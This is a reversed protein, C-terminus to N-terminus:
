EVQGEEFVITGSCSQYDKDTSATGDETRYSIEVRGRTGGCRIIQMVCSVLSDELEIESKSLTFIGHHDDDMILVTALSPCALRISPDEEEEEVEEQLEEATITPVLQNPSLPLPSQIEPTLFAQSRKPGQQANNNLEIRKLDPSNTIKVSYSSQCDDTPENVIISPPTVHSSRRIEKQNGDLITVSPVGDKNMEYSVLSPSQSSSDNTQSIQHSLIQYADPNVLGRYVSIKRQQQKKGLVRRPNFLRIYFHQDGEYVLDEIIAIEIIKKTQGPQFCITGRVPNYDRGSLADGDETAYDVLVQRSLDGNQRVVTATFVGVDEEVTYHGPSFFIETYDDNKSPERFTSQFDVLLKSERRMRWSSLGTLKKCAKMRLLVDSKTGRDLLEITALLELQKSDQVLPHKRRMQRLTVLFDRRQEEFMRFDQNQAEQDDPFLKLGSITCDDMRALDTTSTEVLVKNNFGLQYTVIKEEKTKKKQNEIYRDALYASFLSCPFLSFTLLGEWVEVVGPSIVAAVLILWIYGMTSWAAVVLFIPLHNIRRTEGKPIVFVCVGIVVMTSFAASAIIESPGLDESVFNNSILTITALFVESSAGGLAIITLKAITQNWIRVVMVEEEGRDNRLRIEKKISTIIEIASMFTNALYAIGIFLFIMALLYVIGRGATQAATIDEVPPLWTPLFTGDKCQSPTRDM